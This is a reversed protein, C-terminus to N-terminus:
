EVQGPERAEAPRFDYASVFEYSPEAGKLYAAPDPFKLLTVVVRVRTADPNNEAAGAALMQLVVERWPGSSGAAQDVLASLRLGETDSQVKPLEYSRQKNPLELEFVVRLSDGVNPAFFTYPSEIGAAHAYGIIIPRVPNSPALEWPSMSKLTERIHAAPRVFLQPVMTQGGAILDIIDFCSIAGIIVFHAGFAASWFARRSM